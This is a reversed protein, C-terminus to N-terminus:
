RTLEFEGEAVVEGALTVYRMVYTGPEPLFRGLQMRNVLTTGGPETIFQEYGFLEGGGDDTIVLNIKTGEIPARLSASWAVEKGMFFRTDPNEM